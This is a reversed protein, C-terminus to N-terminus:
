KSDGLPNFPYKDCFAQLSAAETEAALLSRHTSWVGIPYMVDWTNLLTYTAWRHGSIPNYHKHTRERQWVLIQTM